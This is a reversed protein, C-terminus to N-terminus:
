QTNQTYGDFLAELKQGHEHEIKAVTKDAKTELNDVKTNLTKIDNKMDQFEIYIKEMLSFMKDNM